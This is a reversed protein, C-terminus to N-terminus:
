KKSEEIEKEAHKQVEILHKEMLSIAKGKNGKSISDLADRMAVYTDQCELILERIMTAPRTGTRNALDDLLMYVDTSLTVSVRVTDAVPRGVRAQGIKRKRAKKNELQKGDM